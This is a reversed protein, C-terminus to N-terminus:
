IIFNIILYFFLVIGVPLVLATIARLTSLKQIYRFGLVSLIFSWIFTFVIIPSCWFSLLFPTYGFILVKYTQLPGQNGGLLWVFIHIILGVIIFVIFGFVLIVPILFILSIWGILQFDGLPPAMNNMLFIAGILFIISLIFLNFLLFRFTGNVGMNRITEFTKIPHRILGWILQFKLKIREKTVVTRITNIPHQIM